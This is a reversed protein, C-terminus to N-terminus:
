QGVLVTVSAAAWDGAAPTAATTGSGNLSPTNPVAAPGPAQTQNPPYPVATSGSIAVQSEDPVVILGRATVQVLAGRLRALPTNNTLSRSAVQPFSPSPQSQKAAQRILEATALDSTAFVRITDMGPPPGYDWHFGAQNGSLLSDPVLIVQSGSIRGAAYYGPKQHPNPFLLNVGGQSDVDAITLFCDVSTQVELQLSNESTRPEGDRRIRYAPTDTDAVVIIGRQGGRVSTKEKRPQSAVRVTLQIMSAPNDLAMLETASRSRTLLLVLQDLLQRDDGPFSGLPQVGDAGSVRVTGAQEELVFRAFESAGVVRIDGLRDRLAVELRQKREPAMNVFRISIQSAAPPALAVARSGALVLSKSNEIRAAADPGQIGVVRLIAQAKGTEFQTEGPPYVGWVSGPLAGLVVGNLLTAGEKGTPRVEVWSLRAPRNSGAQATAAEARPPLLPQSLRSASAELQPEPMSSLGVQTQIRKLEREAGSFIDRPSADPLASGLSRTLAYSFFGHFKGDIPGDLAQQHSAAGTMLVYHDTVLPVVGRTQVTPKEYLAIRMDQPVSRTSIELSRTATGSHCSDLVILASRAKLRSLIEDLEDDIIDPVGEARGDVPVITEDLGDEEDGNLDQVQSGHGAFHIVVMDEPGSERVLKELAALINVRTAQQDKLIQIKEEAFGFRSLLVQRMAEIDNISGRLQPVNQYKNIGILLARGKPASGGKENASQAGIASSGMLLGASLLLSLLIPRPELTKM